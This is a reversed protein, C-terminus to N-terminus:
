LKDEEYDRVSTEDARYFVSEYDLPKGEEATIWPVDKHSLDTLETANLDSLKDLEEDIHKIEKASLVNLDPEYNPNIFYKKQDKKYFKTSVIELENKDQMEKTVKAFMAPTPGYYNKIYTAGTLQEEFKEYYDFDIFYLLKYLATMGINPKGGVKKLVYALVTKFKEKYEQPVSIRINDQQNRKKKKGKKFVVEMKVPKKGTLFNELSMGFISALKKAETITLDREGKELQIYTPRSIEIKEAIYEQSFGNKLRLERIAQYLNRIM